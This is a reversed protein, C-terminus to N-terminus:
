SEEAAPRDPKWSFKERAIRPHGDILPRWADLADIVMWKFPDEILATVLWEVEHAEFVFVVETASLFVSHRVFGSKQLDFPPGKAILEESRAHAGPKLRAVLALRELRGEEEEM